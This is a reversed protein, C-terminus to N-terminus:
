DVSKIFEKASPVLGKKIATDYLIGYRDLKLHEFAVLRESYQRQDQASPPSLTNAIALLTDIGPYKQRLKQDLQWAGRCDGSHEVRIMENEIQILDNCIDARDHADKIYDAIQNVKNEDLHIM